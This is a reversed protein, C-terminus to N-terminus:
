SSTSSTILPPITPTGSSPVSRTWATRVGHAGRGPHLRAHRRAHVARRAPGLGPRRRRPRLVGAAPPDATCTTRALEAGARRDGPRDHTPTPACPSNLPRPQARRALAQPGALVARRRRARRLPMAYLTRVARSRFRWRGGDFAYDDDYRFSTVLTDDVTALEASAVVTGRARHAGRARAPGPCAPLHVTAGYRDFRVRFFDVVAARGVTSPSNPRPSSRTGPSARAWHRRTTTTSPWHTAASCNRCRRGPRSAPWVSSSTATWPAGASTPKRLARDPSRQPSGLDDPDRAAPPGAGRRRRREQGHSRRTSPLGREVLAHATMRSSRM